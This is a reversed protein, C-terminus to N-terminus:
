NADYEGIIVEVLAFISYLAFSSIYTMQFNRLAIKLHKWNYVAQIRKDLIELFYKSMRREALTTDISSLM